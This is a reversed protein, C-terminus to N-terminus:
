KPGKIEALKELIAMRVFTSPKISMREATAVLCEMDHRQLTLTMRWYVNKEKFGLSERVEASKVYNM